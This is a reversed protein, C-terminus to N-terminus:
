SAARQLWHPVSDDDPIPYDPGTVAPEDTKTKLCLGRRLAGMDLAPTKEQAAPTKTGDPKACMNAIRALKKFVTEINPPTPNQLHARCEGVLTIIKDHAGHDEHHREHRREISAKITPAYQLAAFFRDAGLRELFAGTDEPKADIESGLEGEAGAVAEVKEEPSQDLAAHEARRQELSIEASAGNVTKGNSGAKSGAPKTSTAPKRGRAKRGSAEVRDTPKHPIEGNAKSRIGGVTKHDTNTLRGIGRDSLEPTAALVKAILDRKQEANLHRRHVNLSVAIAYPDGGSRYTTRVTFNTGAHGVHCPRGHVNVELMGAIAMADLRNRGDLLKWDDNENQKWLTIAELLCGCAKIDGALEKLESESMLLFLEAAPHVRLHARWNFPAPAGPLRQPNNTSATNSV